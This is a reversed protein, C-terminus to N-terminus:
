ERIGLARPSSRGIAPVISSRALGGGTGGSM